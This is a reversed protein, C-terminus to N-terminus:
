ATGLERMLGDVYANAAPTALVPARNQCLTAGAVDLNIMLLHKDLEDAHAATWAGHGKALAIGFYVHRGLGTDGKGINGSLIFGLFVKCLNYIVKMVWLFVCGHSGGHRFPEEEYARGSGSFCGREDLGDVFCQSPLILYQNAGM